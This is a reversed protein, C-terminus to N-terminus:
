RVLALLLLWVEALPPLTLQSALLQAAVVALLPLLWAHVYPWFKVNALPRIFYRFAVVSLLLQLLSLAIAFSEVQPFFCAVSVIVPVAIVASIVNWSFENATRGVAQALMGANLALPRLVGYMAFFPVLAAVAAFEQGYLLAVLWPAFLLLVVYIAASALAVKRTGAVFSAALAPSNHQHRALTPLVLRSVLPHM